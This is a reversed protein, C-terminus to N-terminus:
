MVGKMTKISIDCENNLTGNELKGTVSASNGHCPPEGRTSEGILDLLCETFWAEKHQRVWHPIVLHAMDKIIYGSLKNNM